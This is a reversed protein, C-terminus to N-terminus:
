FRREGCRIPRPGIAGAGLMSLRLFDRLSITKSRCKSTTAGSGVSIELRWRGAAAHRRRPIVHMCDGVWGFCSRLGGFLRKNLIMRLGSHRLTRRSPREGDSQVVARAAMECSRSSIQRLHSRQNSAKEDRVRCDSRPRIGAESGSGKFVRCPAARGERDPAGVPSMMGGV